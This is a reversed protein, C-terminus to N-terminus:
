FQKPIQQGQLAYTLLGSTVRFREPERSLQMVKSLCNTSSIKLGCLWVYYCKCIMTCLWEFPLQQTGLSPETILLVEQEELTGKEDTGLKWIQHSGGERRFQSGRRAKVPVQLYMVYVWVSLFMYALYFYTCKQTQKLAIAGEFYATVFWTKRYNNLLQLEYCDICLKSQSVSLFSWDTYWM